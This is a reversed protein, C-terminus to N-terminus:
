HHESIQYSSLNSYLLYLFDCVNKEMAFTKLYSSSLNWFVEKMLVGWNTVELDQVIKIYIQRMFFAIVWNLM